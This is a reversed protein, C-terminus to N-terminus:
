QASLIVANSSHVCVEALLRCQAEGLSPNRQKLLSAMFDIAEQTMSQLTSLDQRFWGHRAWRRDACPLLATPLITRFRDRYALIFHSHIPHPAIKFAERM